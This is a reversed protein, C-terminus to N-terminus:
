PRGSCRLKIAYSRRCRGPGVKVAEMNPPPVILFGM